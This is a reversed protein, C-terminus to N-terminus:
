LYNRRAKRIWVAYAPLGIALLGLGAVSEKPKELLTNLAVGASARVFFAPVVPYGWARYPRPAAPRARRLAFIAAGTAAFIVVEIFIVYTFLQEFTGSLVLVIAWIVWNVKTM